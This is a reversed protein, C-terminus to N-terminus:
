ALDLRLDSLADNHPGLRKDDAQTLDLEALLIVPAGAAPGAVPFGHLDCIVSSGFAEIM